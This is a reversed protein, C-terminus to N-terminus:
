SLSIAVDCYLCLKAIAIYLQIVICINSMNSMVVQRIVQRQEYCQADGTVISCTPQLWSFGM